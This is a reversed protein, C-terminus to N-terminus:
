CVGPRTSPNCSVQLWSCAAFVHNVIFVIMGYNFLLTLRVIFMIAVMTSVRDLVYDEVESVCTRFEGFIKLWDDRSM